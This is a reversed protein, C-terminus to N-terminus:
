KAFTSRFCHPMALLLGLGRVLLFVHLAAWLGHNGFMAGFTFLAAVFAAFSVLMANRMERSWTAGTFVGNMQFAPVGSLAAFAAWPLYHVAVARVEAISTISGILQEGFAWILVSALGALAFGWGATLQVTRLFAQQDRAGVARGALQQAAAAFGDLFYGSFLFIRLLVENTALTLTGLQASQRTFLSYAAVLGLSRIMMDRNLRLMRIMAVIDFKDRGSIKPRFLRYVTVMGVIMAATESCLAGWAVGSIGWGLYLGFAISFVINIGNVLLQLFLGLPANGRGLVYGFIVYNIFAVPASILRIRIYLNMAATVPQEANLFWESVAAILPAVLVLTLGSLVALIIARWFVAREEEFDGSGFAQAILSTTGSRLFNFTALVLDLVVAGAALGGLLAASGFQGVVATHVMGLLPTTLYGLTMPLALVLVKRNTIQFTRSRYTPTTSKM